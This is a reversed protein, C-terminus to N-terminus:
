EMLDDLGAALALNGEGVDKHGVADLSGIQSKRQLSPLFPLSILVFDQENLLLDDFSTFDIM